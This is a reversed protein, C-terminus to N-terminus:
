ARTLSTVSGDRCQWPAKEGGLDIRASNNRSSLPVFRRKKGPTRGETADSAAPLGYEGVWGKAARRLAQLSPNTDRGAPSGWCPPFRPAIETTNQASFTCFHYMNPVCRATFM